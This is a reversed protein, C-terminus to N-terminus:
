SPAQKRGGGKRGESVRGQRAGATGGDTAKLRQQWEYLKNLADLPSLANVDLAKLDAVIPDESSFLTLQHIAPPAASRRPGAAGSAELEQLIEEARNIVARPLGAMQAVHVGYSRDAAGPIIRHLFVVSDGQETVAVNYNVVNPLREALDTLEHYHTAFL